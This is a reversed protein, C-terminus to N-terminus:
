CFGSSIDFTVSVGVNTDFRFAGTTFTADTICFFTGIALQTMITSTISRVRIRRHVSPRVSLRVSPRVLPFWYGGLLWTPRPIVIYSPTRTTECTRATHTHTHTQTYALRSHPDLPSFARQDYACHHSQHLWSCNAEDPIAAASAVPDPCCTKHPLYPM